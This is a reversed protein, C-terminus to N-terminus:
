LMLANDELFLEFINMIVILLTEFVHSPLRDVKLVHLLQQELLLPRRRRFLVRLFQVLVPYITSRERVCRHRLFIIGFLM